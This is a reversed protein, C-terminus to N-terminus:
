VEDDSVGIHNYFDDLTITYTTHDSRFGFMGLIFAKIKSM